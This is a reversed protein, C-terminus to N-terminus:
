SGGVQAANIVPRLIYGPQGQSENVQISLAADFDLVIQKSEDASLSFPVVVDVKSSPVTVDIATDPTTPDADEDMLLEAATVHLRVKEYDGAPLEATALLTTQGNQLDLLNLTREGGDTAGPLALPMGQDDQGSPILSIDSLTVNVASVTSLDIPADTLLVSVTGNNSMTSSSCGAALAVAVVGALVFGHRFM